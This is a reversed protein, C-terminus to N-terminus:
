VYADWVSEMDNDIDAGHKEDWKFGSQGKLEAIVLYIGKLQGWKNKCVKGTKTAGKQKKPDLVASAANFTATKFNFGDGAEARHDILFRILEMEDEPSWSARTA